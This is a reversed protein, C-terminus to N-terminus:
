TEEDGPEGYYHFETGPRLPEHDRIDEYIDEPAQLRLLGTRTNILGVKTWAGPNDNFIVPVDPIGNEEDSLERHFIFHQGAVGTEKPDIYYIQVM